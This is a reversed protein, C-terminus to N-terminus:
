AAGVVVAVSEEWPIERVRGARYQEFAMKCVGVTPASFGTGNAWGSQAAAKRASEIREWLLTYLVATM